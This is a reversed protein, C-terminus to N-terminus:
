GEPSSARLILHVVSRRIGGFVRARLRTLRQLGIRTGRDSARAGQALRPPGNEPLPQPGREGREADGDTEEERDRPGPQPQPQRRSAAGDRQEHQRHQDRMAATGSNANGSARYAQHAQAAEIAAATDRVTRRGRM